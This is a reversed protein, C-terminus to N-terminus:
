NVKLLYVRVNYASTLTSGNYLRINIGSSQLTVDMRFTSHDYNGQRWYGTTTDAYMMAVILTNNQNFGTPYAVTTQKSGTSDWTINDAGIVQLHISTNISLTGSGDFSGSGTVDGTLSVTGGTIKTGDLLNENDETITIDDFVEEINDQMLNLNSATLPTTGSYTAPTVPYDINDITVIADSVKTGDQFTIKNM